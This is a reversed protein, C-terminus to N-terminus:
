RRNNKIRIVKRVGKDDVVVVVVVVVMHMKCGVM